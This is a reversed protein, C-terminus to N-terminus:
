TRVATLILDWSTQVEFPGGSYDGRTEVRGFGARIVFRRLDDADIPLLVGRTAESSWGSSGERAHVMVIEVENVRALFIKQFFERHGEGGVVRLPQVVM